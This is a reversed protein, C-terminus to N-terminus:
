QRKPSEARPNWIAPYRVSYHHFFPPARHKKRADWSSTTALLLQDTSPLRPAFGMEGIDSAAGKQGGALRCFCIMIRCRCWCIKREPEDDAHRRGKNGCLIKNRLVPHTPRSTPKPQSTALPAQFKHCSKGFDLCMKWCKRNRQRKDDDLTSGVSAHSKTTFQIEISPNLCKGVQADHVNPKQRLM